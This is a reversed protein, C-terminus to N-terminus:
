GERNALVKECHTKGVKNGIRADSNQVVPELGPRINNPIYLKEAIMEEGWKATSSRGKGCLSKSSSNNQDTNRLPKLGRRSFSLFCLSQCRLGSQLRCKVGRRQCM